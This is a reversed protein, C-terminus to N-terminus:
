TNRAPCGSITGSDDLQKKEPNLSFQSKIKTANELKVM